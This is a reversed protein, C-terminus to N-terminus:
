FTVELLSHDGISNNGSLTFRPPFHDLASHSESGEWYLPRQSPSYSVCGTPLPRLSFPECVRYSTTELQIAWVGQLFHDWASHSVCGTPLPRLSFPECVRYSTTELQIAWVGHLFHDGASYTVCGTHLPRWSLRLILLDLKIVQDEGRPQNDTVTSNLFMRNICLWKPVVM